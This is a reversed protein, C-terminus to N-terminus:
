SLPINIQIALGSPSNEHLTFTGGLANVRDRIGLLGIGSSDNFSSIDAFGDDKVTLTLSDEIDDDASRKLEVLATRAQSHKSINSLCEQVIRFINSPIPEEMKDIDGSMEIEYKTRGNNTSNWQSVMGELSAPLGLSDIDAPRLHLLMDRLLDMMHITINSINQSEPILEPYKESAMQIISSANVQLGALCQGFEDHLERTLFRREQEQVNILKFALRQRDSLTKELSDALHNVAKATRHWESIAFPPLRLDLNGNSMEELGSVIINAPKLARGIAIFLLSCLTFVTISSLGLLKKIDTWALYIELEADPILTLLGYTQNNYTIDKISKQGPNFVSRYAKEFWLPWNKNLSTNGRCVQQITNGKTDSYKMCLGTNRKTESWISLDPFSDKPSFSNMVKFLQLELHQDISESTKNLEETIEHNSQYLVYSATGFLCLTATTIILIILNLRLAKPKSIQM